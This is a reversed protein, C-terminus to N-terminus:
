EQKTAIPQNPIATTLIKEMIDERGALYVKMRNFKEPNLEIERVLKTKQALQFLYQHEKHRRKKNIDSILKNRYDSDQLRNKQEDTADPWSLDFTRLKYRIQNSEPDVASEITSWRKGELGMIHVFEHFLLYQDGKQGFMHTDLIGHPYIFNEEYAHANKLSKNKKALSGNKGSGDKGNITDSKKGEAKGKKGASAPGNSKVSGSTKAEESKNFESANKSLESTNSSDNRSPVFSDRPSNPNNNPTSAFDSQDATSLRAAGGIAAPPTNFSRPNSRRPLPPPLSNSVNSDTATPESNAESLEAEVPHNLDSPAPPSQGLSNSRVPPALALADTTDIPPIRIPTSVIPQPLAAPARTASPASTDQRGSSGSDTSSNFSSTASGPDQATTGFTTALTAPQNSAIAAPQEIAGTRTFPVSDSATTPSASAAAPSWGMDLASSGESSGISTRYTDLAAAHDSTGRVFYDGFISTGSDSPSESWGTEYRSPNVLRDLSSGQPTHARAEALAAARGGKASIAAALPDAADPYITKYYHRLALDERENTRAVRNIVAMIASVEGPGIIDSIKLQLQDWINPKSFNNLNNPLQALLPFIENRMRALLKSKLSGDFYTSLYYQMMGRAHKMTMSSTRMHGDSGTLGAKKFYKCFKENLTEFSKQTRKTRDFSSTLVEVDSQYSKLPSLM